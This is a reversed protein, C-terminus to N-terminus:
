WKIDSEQPNKKILNGVNDDIKKYLEATVQIDREVCNVYVIPEKSRVLNGVILKMNDVAIKFEMGENCHGARLSSQWVACPLDRIPWECVVEGEIEM